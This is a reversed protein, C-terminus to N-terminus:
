KIIYKICENGEGNRQREYQSRFIPNKIVKGICKPLLLNLKIYTNTKLQQKMM